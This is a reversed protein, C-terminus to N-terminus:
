LSYSCRTGWKQGRKGSRAVGAVWRKCQFDRRSATNHRTGRSKLWQSLSRSRGKRQGNTKQPRQRDWTSTGRHAREGTRRQLWNHGRGEEDKQNNEKCHHERGREKAKGGRRLLRRGRGQGHRM